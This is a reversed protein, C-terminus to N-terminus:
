PAAAGGGESTLPAQIMAQFTGSPNKEFLVIVISMYKVCDLLNPGKSAFMLILYLQILCTKEAEGLNKKLIAALFLPM